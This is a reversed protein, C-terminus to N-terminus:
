FAAHSAESSLIKSSSMCIMKESVGRNRNSYRLGCYIMAQACKGLMSLDHVDPIKARSRIHAGDADKKTNQILKRPARTTVHVLDNLEYYV